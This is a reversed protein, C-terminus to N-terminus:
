FCVHVEKNMTFRLMLVESTENYTFKFAGKPLDLAEDLKEGLEDINGQLAQTIEDLTKVLKKAPTVLERCPHLGTVKLLCLM